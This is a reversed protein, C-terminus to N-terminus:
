PLIRDMWFAGYIVASLVLATLRPHDALYNTFSDLATNM